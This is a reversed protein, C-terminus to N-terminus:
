VPSFSQAEQRESRLVPPRARDDTNQLENRFRSLIFLTYDIGVALGVMTALVPTTTGITTFRQRRQHRHDGDWM